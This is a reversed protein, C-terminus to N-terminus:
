EGKIYVHKASVYGQTGNYTVQVWDNNPAGTVTLTTGNKLTQLVKSQTNPASRINLSRATVTATISVETIPPKLPLRNTINVAGVVAGTLLLAVIVMSIHAKSSHWDYKKTIMVFYIGAFILALIANIVFAINTYDDTVSDIIVCVILAGIGWGVGKWFSNDDNDDVAGYWICLVFCMLPFIVRLYWGNLGEFLGENIVGMSVGMSSYVIPLAVWFVAFGVWYSIAFITKKRRRKAAVKKRKAEEKEKCQSRLQRCEEVQAKVDFSSPLSELAQAIRSFTESLKAFDDATKADNIQLKAKSLDALAQEHAEKQRREMEANHKAEKRKTMIGSFSRVPLSFYTWQYGDIYREVSQSYIRGTSSDMCWANKGFTDKEYDQESSFYTGRPFGVAHNTYMLKLEDRTPLRWGTFGNINLTSCRTKANSWETEFEASLPACELYGWRGNGAHWESFVIGGAPGVDGIEYDAAKSEAEKREAEDLQEDTLNAGWKQKLKEYRAREKAFIVSYESEHKAQRIEDERLAKAADEDPDGMWKQLIDRAAETLNEFHEGM